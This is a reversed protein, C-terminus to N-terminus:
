NNGLRRLVARIPSADSGVLKLPLAMLEYDGADVRTLDLNELITIGADALVNHTELKKSTAHDVSPSDIGILKVGAEALARAAEVGLSTFGPDFTSPDLAAATRLLVRTAGGLEAPAVAAAPVAKPDGAGTVHLVRCPGVFLDLPLADISAEGERYHLPADAHSGCHVSMRITSVNCSMGDAMRMVWERSFESDGPFVATGPGLPQSIDILM